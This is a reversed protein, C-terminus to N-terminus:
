TGFCVSDVEFGWKSIYILKNGLTFFWVLDPVSCRLGIRNVWQTGSAFCGIEKFGLESNIFWFSSYRNYCVAPNLMGQSLTPFLVYYLNGLYESIDDNPFNMKTPMQCLGPLMNSVMLLPNKEKFLENDPFSHIWSYYSIQVLSEEELLLM